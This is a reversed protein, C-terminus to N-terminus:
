SYSSALFTAVYVRHWDTGSLLPKYALNREFYARLLIYFQCVKKQRGM